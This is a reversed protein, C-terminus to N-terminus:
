AADDPTGDPVDVALDPPNGKDIFNGTAPKMKHFATALEDDNAICAFHGDM